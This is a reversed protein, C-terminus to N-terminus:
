SEKAQDPKILKTITRLTERNGNLHSQKHSWNPNDYIKSSLEKQDLEDEMKLLIESLVEAFQKSSETDKLQKVWVSYM